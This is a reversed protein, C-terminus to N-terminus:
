IWTISSIKLLDPIKLAKSNRFPDFNEKLAKQAKTKFLGMVHKGYRYRIVNENYAAKITHIHKAYGNNAPKSSKLSEDILRDVSKSAGSVTAEDLFQQIQVSSLRPEIESLHTACLFHSEIDVGTTAFFYVDINKFMETFEDINEDSLYDRDRHVLITVHPRKERLYKGLILAGKLQDKGGYSFFETEELKFNNSSLLIRLNDTKDDETIVCCKTKDLLRDAKLVLEDIKKQQEYVQNLYPTILPLLGMKQHIGDNEAHSVLKINTCLDGDKEVLFSSVRDNDTEDLAYFAPSHTSIFIQLDEAYKRFSQALEFAYRMELNNEPEEFGWITDPKVYGPIAINKEQNAMYKLIVPIHRVKIGDGRQKLHYIQTGNQFGFDLNSFLSRFDSPVQITNALGIQKALELTIEETIKQIGSIFGKGQTKMIVSHAEDLVDHLDGMLSNFYDKGKIAPVYRYKLKDLWKYVNDRNTIVKGDANLYMREDIVSGDRKWKKTWRLPKANKFRSAPPDIILDIRIEKRTGTGENAHFCYDDDFRFSQGIDTENNFFLNLARLINSKGNDNQGVFINLDTVEFDKTINKISRFKRIQISKIINM